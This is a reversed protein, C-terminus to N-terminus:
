LKPARQSLAVSGIILAGAIAMPVTLPEGLLMWAWAVAFLPVLYTVTVARAAGVRQILRYYLAYAAGTCIVGIMAASFWAKGSVAQTPWTAIAFPLVLLASCSLTAAALAVPPIDTVLRRLLNAGIGYMFAAGVGAAVAGGVNSGATKGSALVVVGAFGAILAMSRVLGIREGFFLFGVLATFLVAMSNTIAGIGAPAHQAGWAFLAFPIASNIAGILALRPWLRLPFRARAIWLFPLLVIAGLALRMEVLPLTGFEPAAVRQFMFSAGWMAALLGLELPTLWVREASDTSTSATITLANM